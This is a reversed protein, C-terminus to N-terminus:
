TFQYLDRSGRLVHLVEIGDEVPRYFVIFDKFGDVRWARVTSLRPRGLPLWPAGINPNRALFQLTAQVQDYWRQATNPSAQRVYFDAQQDLERDAEPTITIEPM